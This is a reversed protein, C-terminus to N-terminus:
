WYKSAISHSPKKLLWGEILVNEVNEVNEANEANELSDDNSPKSIVAM